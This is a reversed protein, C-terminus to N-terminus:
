TVLLNIMDAKYQISFALTMNLLSSPISGTHTTTSTYMGAEPLMGCSICVLCVALLCCLLVHGVRSQVQGCRVM